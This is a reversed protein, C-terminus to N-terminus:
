MVYVSSCISKILLFSSCGSDAIIGTSKQTRWFASQCENTWEFKRGKETLKHL